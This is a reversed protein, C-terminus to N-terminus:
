NVSHIESKSNDTYNLCRYNPGARSQLDKLISEWVEGCDLRFLVNGQLNNRKIYQWLDYSIHGVVRVETEEMEAIEEDTLETIGLREKFGKEFFLQQKGFFTEVVELYLLGFKKRQEPYDICIRLFDWPTLSGKRGRKYHSKTMEDSATWTNSFKTVYRSAGEDTESVKVSHKFFAVVDNIKYKESGCARQWALAMRTRLGQRNSETLVRNCFFLEHCHFHWGNAESWTIEHCTITGEIGYQKRISSWPVFDPQRKIVKQGRMRRRVRMMKDRCAKLSEGAHHPLTLTLMLISGQGKWTNIAKQLEKRRQRGIREACIPCASWSGCTQLGRYAFKSDIEPKAVEVVTVAGDPTWGPKLSRMCNLFRMKSFRLGGFGRMICQAEDTLQWKDKKVQFKQSLNGEFNRTEVQRNREKALAITM